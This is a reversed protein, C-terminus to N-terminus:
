ESPGVPEWGGNEPGQFGTAQADLILKKLCRQMGLLYDSDTELTDCGPSDRRFRCVM